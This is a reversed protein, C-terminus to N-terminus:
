EKKLATIPNLRSAIWAPYLGALVSLVCAVVFIQVLAPPSFWPAISVGEGLGFPVLEILLYAGAIGFGIGFLGGLVGITLSEAVFMFLIAGGSYGIAKLLGIERTREMVSTYLTTIIGVAGVFMSVGGIASLFGIFTGMIDQITGAIAKPSFVGINKGYLKTISAEVRDNDDPGDTIVYIGDYINGKEFLTNASALSISVSNDVDSTGLESTVGRVQFAKRKTVLRDTGGQTEVKSFEIYVTQGTDAFPKELSSPHAVAYGLLIGRSDSPLVFSGSELSVKPTIHVYKSQDFGMIMLDRSNSGSELTATGYFYPIVYKVGNIRELTRVTQATLKTQMGSQAPGFIDASPTVILVNAGLLGLQETIFNNMGGGLGNISTMLTVGVVVMFITLVSRVRRERLAGFSLGLLDSVVM